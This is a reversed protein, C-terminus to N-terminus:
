ANIKVHINKIDEPTTQCCGGIIKVGQKLWKSVQEIILHSDGKSEWQKTEANYQAGGNPYLAITQSLSTLGKDIAQNVGVVSSCNIGFIPIEEKHTKIYECLDEFNTGDSLNGFDDVTVSLWFTQNKYYPVIYEVIAKVEEFKPVTEFVFDHIGRTILADIRARHFKFYDEYSLEYDGTYESGDSLYAGYPGLSGVIVQTSATSEMIQGVATTFLQEIEIDKLGIDSFTQYSAQYTSTLLIDAGADTFAQHAEKIKVPNNKLVESSWLSSNLNCGAQELTTALGGDLVLPSQDELKELLRM